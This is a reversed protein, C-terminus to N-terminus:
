EPKIVLAHIARTCRCRVAGGRGPAWGTGRCLECSERAKVLRRKMNQRMAYTQRSLQAARAADLRAREREFQDVLTELNALTAFPDLLV